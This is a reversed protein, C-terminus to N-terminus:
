IIEYRQLFIKNDIICLDSLSLQYYFIYIIIIIIIIIIILFFHKM